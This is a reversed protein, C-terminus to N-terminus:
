GPSPTHAILVPCEAHHMLQQGVSGLLLGTFAGHGRSGVVILQATHSMAILVEAASGIALRGQVEVTPYKERWGALSSQLIAREPAEVASPPLRSRAPPVYARVAIVDTARALAAGFALRLATDTSASRDIGVVIPGETAASRGRVVVIPVHAHTAVHQSVSGLLLNTIRGAGRNGVVLLSGTADALDLLTTAAPGPVALGSVDVGPTRERAYAVIEAVLQDALREAAQTMEIVAYYDGPWGIPYVIPYAYVIQLRTYTREAEAAAWDVARCAAQSGSYGVIIRQGNM